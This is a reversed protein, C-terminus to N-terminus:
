HGLGLTAEEYGANTFRDDAGSAFFRPLSAPRHLTSYPSEEMMDESDQAVEDDSLFAMTEERNIAEDQLEDDVARRAVYSLYVFIGVCLTVGLITSYHALMSEDSTDHPPQGPKAVHYEAFSRISSGISTHIIVKFLSLATCITYTRLTLTPSAALLCNMVNFPYPALRILFLLRPRKEIARVVRKVIITCNLWRSIADRFFARSSMFVLIAGALSALYSIIAGTWPGFTYGSLIILTSYLPLPASIIYLCTLRKRLFFPM